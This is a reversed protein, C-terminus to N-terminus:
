ILQTYLFINMGGAVYANMVDDRVIIIHISEPNLGASIFIPNALDHLTKEIEVDRIVSLGGGGGGGEQAYPTVPFVFCVVIAFLGLAVACAASFRFKTM